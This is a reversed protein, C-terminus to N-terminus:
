TGAILLEARLQQRVELAVFLLLAVSWALQRRRPTWGLAVNLWRGSVLGVAARLLALLAGYVVVIGLPNYTWADEFRGQAAYRAARTGGCLPDMIGLRHLPPHLDVAPLGYIAMAVAISAGTAALYTVWRHADSRGWRAWLWQSSAGSRLSSTMPSLM